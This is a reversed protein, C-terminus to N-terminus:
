GVALEQFGTKFMKTAYIEEDLIYCIQLRGYIRREMGGQGWKGMKGADKTIYYLCIFVFTMCVKVQM